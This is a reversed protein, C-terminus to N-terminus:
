KEFTDTSGETYHHYRPLIVQDIKTIFYKFVKCYTQFLTHSYFITVVSVSVSKRALGVWTVSSDSFKISLECKERM